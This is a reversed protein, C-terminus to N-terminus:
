WLVAIRTVLSMRRVLAGRIEITREGLLNSHFIPPRHGGPAAPRRGAREPMFNMRVNLTVLAMLRGRGAPPARHRHFRTAAGFTTVYGRRQIIAANEIVFDILFVLIRLKDAGLTVENKAILRRRRTMQIRNRFLSGGLALEKGVRAERRLLRGCVKRLEFVVVTLM